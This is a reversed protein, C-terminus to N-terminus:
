GLSYWSNGDARSIFQSDAAELPAEARNEAMATPRPPTHAAAHKNGQKSKERQGRQLIGHAVVQAQVLAKHSHLVDLSSDPCNVFVLVM